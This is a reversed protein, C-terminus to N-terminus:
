GRGYGYDFDDDYSDRKFPAHLQERQMDMLWGEAEETIKYKIHAADLQPWHNNHWCLAWTGLNVAHAFDDPASGGRIITYMDRGMRTDVKDETLQLFDWLLGRQDEGKNDYDFFRIQQSKILQCTSVLSRAKDIKYYDRWHLETGPQHAMFNAKATPQYWMPMIRELPFGHAKIHEERHNGAGCYDHVLYHAHFDGFLNLILRAEGAMDHPTYSRYGFIVDINNDPRLGLVAITTLSEGKVGGGGWDVSIVRMPYNDILKIAHERENPGIGNAAKRLDELTVLRAGTDYSEGCIENYYTGISTNYRGERKGTLQLWSDPSYCHDVMIQQPIHYGPSTLRRDPFRHWWFGNSPDLPKQCRKRACILGSRRPRVTGDAKPKGNDIDPSFPGTMADLDFELASINDYHCNPCPTLWEAQSSQEWVKQITNDFTKPTGSFMSIGKFPSGSMTERIVPIFSEDFDQLEDYANLDANIGRTRDANMFAYSFFMKSDNAFTRQLVSATNGKQRWYRKMPSQELFDRVYNTSFKRVMEYMPTVFLANFFPIQTCLMIMRVAMSVSKGVQRGCKFIFSKPIHTNFLPEFPYHNGLSFPKGKLMFFLPLIPAINHLHGEQLKQYAYKLQEEFQGPYEELKETTRPVTIERMLPVAQFM